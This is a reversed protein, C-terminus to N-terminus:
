PSPVDEFNVEMLTNGGKLEVDEEDTHGDLTTLRVTYMARRGRHRYLIMYFGDADTVATGVVEGDPDILEVTAGAVPDETSAYAVLGGVGPNKKFANISEITVTDSTGNTYSFTYVEPNAILIDSTGHQVANDNSDKGYGSTKKLGYDLHINVYIFGSAPMDFTLTVENSSGMEQPDYDELTLIEAFTYEEIGPNFCTFGADNVYPTVGGFVHVPNAGQTVFPYPITLTLTVETFPAQAHFANYFYQGPNSANLKFAPLSNIDPTYILRFQRGNTPDGDVDFYCLSSNTVASQPVVTISHDDSAPVLPDGDFDEGNVTGENVLPEGALSEFSPITSTCEYLWTEDVDLLGDADADGDNFGDPESDVATVPSCVDDTVVINQAPAGDSSSYEVEYTYTVVQGEVAYEPGSKIITLTGADHLVDTSHTDQAETLADGDWDDGNASGTNVIPDEEGDAHAPVTYDCSYTWTEGEDLYGDGDTDGGTFNVPSCKDDTVVV